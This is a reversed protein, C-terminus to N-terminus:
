RVPSRILTCREAEATDAAVKICERIAERLDHETWRADAETKISVMATKFRVEVEELREDVAWVLASYVMTAVMTLLLLWNRLTTPITASVM